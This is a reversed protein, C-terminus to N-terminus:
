LYPIVSSVVVVTAIDGDTETGRIYSRNEKDTMQKIM